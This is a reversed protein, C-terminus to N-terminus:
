DNFLESAKEYAAEMVKEHASDSIVADCTPCNEPLDDEEDLIVEVEIEEGCHPCTYYVHIM